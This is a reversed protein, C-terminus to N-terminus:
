ENKLILNVTKELFEDEAKIVSTKNREALERIVEKRVNKRLVNEVSNMNLDEIRSKLARAIEEAKDRDFNDGHTESFFKYLAFSTDDLGKEKQEEEINDMEEKVENYEQVAEEASIEDEKWEGIVQKVRESLTQYAPNKEARIETNEELVAGEAAASYEPPKDEVQKVDPGEIEYHVEEETDISEVDLHEELIERTKERVNGTIRGTEPMVGREMEKFEYYIQNILKWTEIVEQDGLKKHPQVSEYLNEAESFMELFHSAMTDDKRLSAVAEQIKEPDDSFEIDFLNIIEKQLDLFEDALEDTKKIEHEIIEFEEHELAKDMDEFVGAFDVIEGNRKGTMPRNTRAIAQLLNHNALSKDLYMTKLIPADFGTLLKDCVVLLKPKEKKKFDEIIQKEEEDSRIYKQMFDEDDGDGSIIAEIDDSDRYKRLEDAYLAAAKRSPTVVMGKFHNPEVHKQFHELIKEVVKEIRPRLESLESENVYERLIEQQEQLPLDGFEGEFDRDLLDEPIEDWQIHKKIFSVETIVGDRQGEGISYRHLYDEGPPSFEQFTNRDKRDNGEVVPTGTFGFYFADPVANKLRSGLVGETFRHAEDVMVVAEGEPDADIDDDVDEFKQITTLVLQNKNEELIDELDGISDATDFIPFEIDHLDDSMQDELKKRDVVLIYQRDDVVDSKKAKHAAFMMTFSKGSGQTHWILGKRPEGDRIRQIIRNVAQYQMYRPVIKGDSSYFVFYRFIDMLTGPQFLDKVADKVEEEDGGPNEPRWPFYFKEPADTAAYRFRMGDSVVNFLNPVFMRSTDEEYERMENMASQITSDPGVNKLEFHVLPIGNVLLTVDPIADEARKFGYQNVAIFSNEEMLEEVNQEDEPLHILDVYTDESEGDVVVTHPVGDRMYEYFEENAELLNEGGMNRKLNDVIEQAEDEDLKPNIEVIKEKLLEWYVVEKRSRDYKDDLQPAGKVGKRPDGYVDWGIDELYDLVKAEVGSETTKKM